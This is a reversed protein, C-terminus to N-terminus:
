LLRRAPYASLTSAPRDLENMLLAVMGSDCWLWSRASQQLRALAKEPWPHGSRTALIAECLPQIIPELGWPPGARLKELQERTLATM